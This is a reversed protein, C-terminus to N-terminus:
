ASWAWSCPSRARFASVYSLTGPLVGQVDIRRAYFRKRQEGQYEEPATADQIGPWISKLHARAQELTVGPKLRGVVDLWLNKRDRYSKRGSYGTPVIVDTGEIILGAFSKPTVGIITLPRDDVRITKGIVAPDGGYRQQWCRYDLVAVQAPSGRDLGVDDPTILRGLLPQIGLTSFYDGTVATLSSAWRVGNAEFNNMGGGSWGFLSSFVQQHKQLEVLMPLSLPDKGNQEDPSLTSIAVLQQPDRVPLSRLILANIVSFIATNAGIGLALSVLAVATVMPSHILQRSAYRNDQWLRSM